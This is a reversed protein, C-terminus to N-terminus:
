LRALLRYLPGPPLDPPLLPAQRGLAQLLAAAALYGSRAAGEMTAPWGTRVWDGALYLNSIGPTDPSSSAPAVAPRLAEFDPRASFTARKEKVVRGHVLTAARTAPLVKAVETVAMDLITQAPLDVMDHAASIVGHLHQGGEEADYGKNFVWQLPSDTLILHPLEMVQRGQPTSYFLHIGIIPSVGIRDLSQLRTDDGRMAPLCLKALRDFPLASVFADAHLNRDGDIKLATIRRQTADYAFLHASTSLMLTGGSRRIVAEAADYLQVLPVGSLGMLYADEHNLMGELFVQIAYDAGMNVPLENIASVVIVSWFRDIAGQPQGHDHLWDLFSVRNLAARDAHSLRMMALMARAIAAKEALTLGAFGLLSHTLHLPAPLDTAELTDIHPTDSVQAASAFYLRRHWQIKDAVGLRRYLDLLSTCCGLLVHQCNDLIHGTTPDIFSTARGGLRRRTEVLTVAVGSEALRVAAAIGALGGGVVIVVDSSLHPNPNLM